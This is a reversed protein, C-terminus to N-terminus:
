DEITLFTSFGTMDFVSMVEDNVHKIVLSGKKASLAKQYMLLVRLGASSVYELNTFDFEIDSVKEVDDKIDAELLPATNTDLRGSLVVVLKNENLEKKIEM